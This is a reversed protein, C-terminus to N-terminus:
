VEKGRVVPVWALDPSSQELRAEKEPWGAVGVTRGDGGSRLSFAPDVTCGNALFWVLFLPVFLHKKLRVVILKGQRLAKVWLIMM